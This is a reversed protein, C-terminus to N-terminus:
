RPGSAGHGSPRGEAQVEPLGSLIADAALQLAILWWHCLRLVPRSEDVQESGAGSSDKSSVRPATLAWMPVHIWAPDLSQM